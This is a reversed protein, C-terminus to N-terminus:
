ELVLRDLDKSFGDFSDDCVKQLRDAEEDDGRLRHLRQMGLVTRHTLHHTPGLTNRCYQQSRKAVEYAKDFDRRQNHVRTVQRTGLAVIWPHAYAEKRRLIGNAIGMSEELSADNSADFVQFSLQLKIYLAEYSTPDVEEAKALEERIIQQDDVQMLGHNVLCVTTFVKLRSVSLTLATNPQSEAEISKTYFGLIQPATHRIEDNSMESLKKTTLCLPHDCRYVIRTLEHIYKIMSRSVDPCCRILALIAIYTAALLYPTQTSLLRKYYDFCFQFLRFAQQTRGAELALIAESIHDFWDFAGIPLKTDWSNRTFLGSEFGGSVYGGLVHICEEQFPYFASMPPSPSPTTSESLARSITGQFDVPCGAVAAIQDLKKRSIRSLYAELRRNDVKKGRIYLNSTRTTGSTKQRLYQGVQSSKLNKQLGWKSLHVKYM